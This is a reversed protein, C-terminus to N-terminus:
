RRGRDACGGGDCAGSVHAPMGVFNIVIRRVGPDDNMVVIPPPARMVPIDEALMFPATIPTSVGPHSPLARINPRFKPKFLAIGIRDFRTASSIPPRGHVAEMM